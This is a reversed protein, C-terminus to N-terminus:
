INKIKYFHSEKFKFIDVAKDDTKIYAKIFEDALKEYIQVDDYFVPVITADFNSAVDISKLKELVISNNASVIGLYAKSLFWGPIDRSDVFSLMLPVSVIYHTGSYPAQQRTYFCIDNFINKAKIVDKSRSVEQMNLFSPPTKGRFVPFRYLHSKSTCYVRVNKFNNKIDVKECLSNQIIGIFKSKFLDIDNQQMVM